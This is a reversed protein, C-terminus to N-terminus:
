LTLVSRLVINFANILFSVTMVTIECMNKEKFVQELTAYEGRYAGNVILVTSSPEPIVTQVHNQDVKIKTHCEVTRVIAQAIILVFYNDNQLM